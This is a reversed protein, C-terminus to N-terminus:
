RQPVPTTCVCLRSGRVTYMAFVDREDDSGNILSALQATLDDRLSADVGETSAGITLVDVLGDLLRGLAYLLRDRADSDITLM